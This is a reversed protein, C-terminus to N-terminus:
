LELMTELKYQRLNVTPVKGPPKSHVKRIQTQIQIKVQIRTQIQTQPCKLLRNESPGSSHKRGACRNGAPLDRIGDM